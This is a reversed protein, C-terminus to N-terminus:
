KMYVEEDLKGNLYAAVIDMGHVQLKYHAVLAIIFYFTKLWITLAYTQFFDVSPIQHLDGVVLWAKHQAIKSANNQKQKFVWLYNIAKCSPPLDM